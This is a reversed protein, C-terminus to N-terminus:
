VHARGIEKTGLTGIAKTIAAVSSSDAGSFWSDDLTDVNNAIEDFTYNGSTVDNWDEEFLQDEDM